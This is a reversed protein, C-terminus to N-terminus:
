TEETEDTGINIGLRFPLKWVHKLKKKKKGIKQKAKPVICHTLARQIWKRGYTMWSKLLYFRSRERLYIQEVEYKM